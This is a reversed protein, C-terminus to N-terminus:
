TETMLPVLSTGDLKALREDFTWLPLARTARCGELIAQDAFDARGFEFAALARECRDANEIVVGETQMFGRLAGAISARDFKYAARLVWVIEVLVIQSVWVGGAQLARRFLAEARACQDQDDMVLLRVLVNTDVAEV